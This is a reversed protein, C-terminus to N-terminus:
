GPTADRRTVAYYRWFLRAAVGRWPSWQEAIARITREDPRERFGLADGVAIMLALDGAPFIDAHGLCFLSYVEATWPGVGYLGTLSKIVEESPLDALADIDFHSACADAIARLTRIKPRSLGCARLDDESAALVDRPCFDGLRADFRGWIAEAANRSIQQSVIIRALGGFGSQTRRLPVPGAIDIVPKLRPDREALGVLGDAIDADTEITPM